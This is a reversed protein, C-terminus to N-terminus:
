EISPNKKHIETYRDWIELCHECANVSCHSRHNNRFHVDTNNSVM